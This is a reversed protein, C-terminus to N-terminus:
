YAFSINCVSLATFEVVNLEFLKQKYQLESRQSEMNALRLKLADIEKYAREFGTSYQHAVSRTLRECFKNIQKCIRLNAALSLLM